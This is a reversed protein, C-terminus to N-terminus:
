YYSATDETLGGAALGLLTGVKDDIYDCLGEAILENSDVKLPDGVGLKSCFTPLLDADQNLASGVVIVINQGKVYVAVALDGSLSDLVADIDDMDGAFGSLMDYADSDKIAQAFEALDMHLKLFGEKSSAGYEGSSLDDVDINIEDLLDAINNMIEETRDDDALTIQMGMVIDFTADEVDEPANIDDVGDQAMKCFVVMQEFDEAEFDDFVNPTSLGYASYANIDGEADDWNDEIYDADMVCYVGDEYDDADLDSMDEPDVESADMKECAAIFDEASVSKVKSCGAVSAVLSLTLLVATLKKLKM